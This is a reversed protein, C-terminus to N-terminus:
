AGEGEVPRGRGAGRELTYLDRVLEAQAALTSLPQSAHLYGVFLDGSAPMVQAGGDPGIVAEMGAIYRHPAVSGDPLHERGGLPDELYAWCVLPVRVLPLSEPPRDEEAMWPALPAVQPEDIYVASWDAAPIMQFIRM